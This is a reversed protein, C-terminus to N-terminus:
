APNKLSQLVTEATEQPSQVTTNLILGAVTRYLNERRALRQAASSPDGLLPRVAAKPNLQQRVCREYLTEFPAALLITLTRDSAALLDLNAPTEVAGGGLAIVVHSDQLSSRLAETELRRFVPEGSLAFIDAVTRGDYRQIEDDLDLFRWNLRAALLRGITTKGSGMFGTLVLRELQELAAPLQPDPERDTEGAPPEIPNM